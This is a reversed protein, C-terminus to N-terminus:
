KLPVSVIMATATAGSAVPEASIFESLPGMHISRKLLVVNDREAIARGIARLLSYNLANRAGVQLTHVGADLALATRTACGCTAAARRTCPIQSIIGWRRSWRCRSTRRPAPM